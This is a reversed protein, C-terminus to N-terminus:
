CFCRRRSSVDGFFDVVVVGDFSSKKKQDVAFVVVSFFFFVDTDDSEDDRIQNHTVLYTRTCTFINKGLKAVTNKIRM